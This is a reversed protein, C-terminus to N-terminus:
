LHEGTKFTYCVQFRNPNLLNKHLNTEMDDIRNCGTATQKNVNGVPMQLHAYCFLVLLDRVNLANYYLGVILILLLQM